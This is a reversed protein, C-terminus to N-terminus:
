RLTPDNVMRLCAHLRHHFRRSTSAGSSHRLIESAVISLIAMDNLITSINKMSLFQPSRVSIPVLLVFLLLILTSERREFAKKVFSAISHDPM